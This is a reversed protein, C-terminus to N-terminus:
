RQLVVETMAHRELPRNGHRHKPGMGEWHHLVAYRDFLRLIEGPELFTRFNHLGDTFSNEGLSKWKQSYNSFSADAVTFGTVFVLSGETTWLMLKQRLVDIANRSLIQILGFVLIGSYAVTPPVFDAFDCPFVHIPLGQQAALASVQEIAVQSPDIAHVTFGERALFLANRGQGVGIDLVPWSNNIRRYHSRLVLEPETGFVDKTQRYTEDYSM